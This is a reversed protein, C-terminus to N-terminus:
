KPDLSGVFDLALRLWVARRTDDGVDQGDPVDVFGGMRRGTMEMPKAGAVALAEAESAKGVRFMAGGSGHLAVLMNGDMLFCLGGFMRQETIGSIEALDERIIEALGEDHAM